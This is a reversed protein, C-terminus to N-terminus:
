PAGNSVQATFTSDSYWSSCSPFRRGAPAREPAVSVPRDAGTSGVRDHAAPRLSRGRRRGFIRSRAHFRHCVECAPGPQPAHGDEGPPVDVIGLGAAGLQVRVLHRATPGGCPDVDHHPGGRHCAPGRHHLPGAVGGDAARAAIGHEDFPRHLQRRASEAREVPQDLDPVPHRKQARHPRPHRRDHPEMM